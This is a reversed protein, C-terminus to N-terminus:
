VQALQHPLSAYNTPKELTIYNTKLLKKAELVTIKYLEQRKMYKKAENGCCNLIKLLKSAENTSNKQKKSAM